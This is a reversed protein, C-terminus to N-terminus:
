HMDRYSNIKLYGDICFSRLCKYQTFKHLLPLPSFSAAFKARDDQLVHMYGIISSLGVIRFSCESRMQRVLLCSVNEYLKIIPSCFFIVVSDSRKYREREPKRVSNKFNELNQM